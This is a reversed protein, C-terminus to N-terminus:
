RRKKKILIFIIAILAIVAVIIATVIYANDGTNM